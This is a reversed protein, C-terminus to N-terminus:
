LFEKIFGWKEPNNDISAVIEEKRKYEYYAMKGFLGLGFLAIASMNM